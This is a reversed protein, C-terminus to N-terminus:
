YWTSIRLWIFHHFAGGGADVLDWDTPPDPLAGYAFIRRYGYIYPTAGLTTLYGEGLHSGLAYRLTPAGNSVLVLLYRGPTLVQNIAIAKVGTSDVAVEGADLILAVPQWDTDAIYIALRAKKNAAGATTVEICIQDLTMRSAIYIPEHYLRDATIASTSINSHSFGPISLYAGSADKPRGIPPLAMEYGYNGVVITYLSLISVQPTQRNDKFDNGIIINRGQDSTAEEYGYYQTHPGQNDCIENALVILSTSHDQSMIGDFNGTQGNNRITCLAVTFNEGFGSWATTTVGHRENWEITCGILKSDNANDIEVGHYGYDIYTNSIISETFGNLYITSYTTLTGGFDCNDIMGDACTLTYLRNGNGYPAAERFRCNMIRFWLVQRLYLSHNRFHTGVVHDMYLGLNDTSSGGLGQFYIAHSAAGQNSGNGDLALDRLVIGYDTHPPAGIEPNMNEILNCNAGNALQLITSEGEGNLAINRTIKIVVTIIYTTARVMIEAGDPSATIAAQIVTAAVTGHGNPVLVWGRDGQMAAVTYTVGSFTHQYVIISVPSQFTGIDGPPGQGRLDELM